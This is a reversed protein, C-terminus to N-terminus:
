NYRQEQNAEKHYAKVASKAICLRWMLAIYIGLYIILVFANYKRQIMDRCESVQDGKWVDPRTNSMRACIEAPTLGEWFGWGSLSPGYFFLTRAPVEVFLLITSRAWESLQSIFTDFTQKIVGDSTVVSILANM